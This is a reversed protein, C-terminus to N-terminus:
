KAEGVIPLEWAPPRQYIGDDLWVLESGYEPHGHIALMDEMTSWVSTSHIPTRWRIAVTGDHFMVGEFQVEADPAKQNRDHTARKAMDHRYMVFRRMNSHKM